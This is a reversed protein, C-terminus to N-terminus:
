PPRPSPWSGTRQQYFIGRSAFKKQAATIYQGSMDYGVYTIDAPPSGISRSWDAAHAV